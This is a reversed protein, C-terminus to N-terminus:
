PFFGCHLDYADVPLADNERRCQEQSTEIVISYDGTALLDMLPTHQGPELPEIALADSPQGQRFNGVLRLKAPASRVGGVNAVSFFIPVGSCSSVCQVVFSLQLDPLTACRAPGLTASAVAVQAASPDFGTGCRNVPPMGQPDLWDCSCPEHNVAPDDIGDCNSDIGDSFREFYNVGIRASASDCGADIGAGVDAAAAEIEADTPEVLADESADLPPGADAPSHPRSSKACASVLVLTLSVLQGRSCVRRCEVNRM